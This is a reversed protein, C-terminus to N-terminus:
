TIFKSYEPRTLYLLYHLYSIFKPDELTNQQALVVISNILDNIIITCALYTPNALCQIFELEVALREEETLGTM